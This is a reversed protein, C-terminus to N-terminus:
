GTPGSTTAAIGPSYFAEDCYHIILPETLM